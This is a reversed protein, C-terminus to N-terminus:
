DHRVSGSLLGVGNYGRVIKVNMRRTLSRLRNRIMARGFAQKTGATLEGKSRAFEEWAAFFDAFAIFNGLSKACRERLFEDYIKPSSLCANTGEIGM